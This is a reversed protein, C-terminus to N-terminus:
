IDIDLPVTSNNEPSIITIDRIQNDEDECANIFIFIVVCLILKM